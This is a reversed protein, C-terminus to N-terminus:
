AYYVSEFLLSVDRTIATLGVWFFLPSTIFALKSVLKLFPNLNVSYFRM